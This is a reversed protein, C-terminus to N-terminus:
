GPPSNPAHRPEEEIEDLSPPKPIETIRVAYREGHVRVEGRAILTGNVTVELSEGTLRDLHLVSGVHLGLLRRLDLEVTGLPVELHLVLEALDNLSLLHTGAGETRTLEPLTRVSGSPASDTVGHSM